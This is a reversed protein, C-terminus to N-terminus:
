MFASPDRRSTARLKAIVSILSTASFDCSLPHFPSTAGYRSAADYRLSSPLSPPRSRKEQM